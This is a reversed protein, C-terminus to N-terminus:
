FLLFEGPNTLIQAKKSSLNEVNLIKVHLLCFDRSLRVDQEKCSFRKAPPGNRIGRRTINPM